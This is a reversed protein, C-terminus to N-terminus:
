VSFSVRMGQIVLRGLKSGGRLTLLVGLAVLGAVGLVDLIASPSLGGAALVSALVAIVVIVVVDPTSLRHRDPLKSEVCCAPSPLRSM